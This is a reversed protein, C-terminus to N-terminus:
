ILINIVIKKTALQHDSLIEFIATRYCEALLDEFSERPTPVGACLPGALELSHSKGAWREWLSSLLAMMTKFTTVNGMFKQCLPDISKNDQYYQRYSEDRMNPRHQLYLRARSEVEPAM